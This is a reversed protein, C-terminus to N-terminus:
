LSALEHDVATVLEGALILQFVVCFLCLLELYAQDKGIEQRGGTRGM